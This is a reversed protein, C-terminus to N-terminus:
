EKKKKGKIKNNLYARSATFNNFATATATQFRNPRRREKDADPNVVVRIGKEILAIEIDTGMEVAEGDYHVPAPEPRHILVRRTKRTTVKCSRDMTKNLMDFGMQPADLVNFKQMIVIDMIGDSMSAQPAIYANNGYQSANAFTIVYADHEETVEETQLANGDEDLPVFRLTYHDPQYRLGEQLVLRVYRAAGRKGGSAFKMSIFADFGMGCTCFFPHGNITGYDLEHIEMRNIIEIAKRVRLPLMLHRALGNGSGCPIIGLATRTHILARGVENITGDGGVAVVVDYGEEAAQAAIEEAHGAYETYRVDGDIVSRDVYREIQELVHAKKVHGSIPNLIFLVRKKVSSMAFPDFPTNINFHHLPLPKTHYFPPVVNSFSHCIDTNLCCFNVKKFLFHKFHFLIEVKAASVSKYQMTWEERLPCQLANHTDTKWVM